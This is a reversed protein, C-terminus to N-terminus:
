KTLEKMIRATSTNIYPDEKLRYGNDGTFLVGNNVKGGHVNDLSRIICYRSLKDGKHECHKLCAVCPGLDILEGADTRKVFENEYARGPMGVPSKMIVIKDTTNMHYDNFAQTAGCEETSLFRTSMQVGSAGLERMRDNDSRDWVGGAAIVPIDYKNNKLYEILRPIVYDLEFEEKGIDDPNTVGLHGGAHNPTEVVIASPLVGYRKWREIIIKAARVSSIIPILEPTKEGKVKYKEVLNPLILPLGAGSAIYKIGNKVAVEVSEEYDTAVVMLNVGVNGNDSRELGERIVTELALKNAKLYNKSGKMEPTIGLGVGGITGYGGNNAVAASLEAGTVGQSMGGLVINNEAELRGIRLSPLKGNESM